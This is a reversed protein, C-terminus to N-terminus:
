MVVEGGSGVGGTLECVEIEGGTGEFPGSVAGAVAGGIVINVVAGTELGSGCPMVGGGVPEVSEEVLVM